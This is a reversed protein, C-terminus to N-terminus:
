VKEVEAMGKATQLDVELSQRMKQEKLLADKESAVKEIESLSRCKEELYRM